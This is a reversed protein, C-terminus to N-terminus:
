KRRKSQLPDDSQPKQSNEDVTKNYLEIREEPTMAKLMERTIAPKQEQAEQAARKSRAVDVDRVWELTQMMSKANKCRIGNQVVSTLFLEEMSLSKREGDVNVEQTKALIKAVTDLLTPAKRPRGSPNGSKGKKFRTELPPKGRGVTYNGSSAKKTM